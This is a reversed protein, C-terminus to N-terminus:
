PFHLRWPPTPIPSPPLPPILPLQPTEEDEEADAAEMTGDNTSKTAGMLVLSDERTEEEEEELDSEVIQQTEM